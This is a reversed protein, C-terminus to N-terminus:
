RRRLGEPLGDLVRLLPVDHPDHPRPPFEGRQIGDLVGRWGCCAGGGADAAGDAAGSKVVPM